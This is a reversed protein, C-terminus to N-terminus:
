GNVRAPNLGRALEAAADATVIWPPRVARDADTWDLFRLSNYAGPMANVAPSRLLALFDALSTTTPGFGRNFLYAGLDELAHDASAYREEPDRALLKLTFRSIEEDIGALLKHPPRLPKELSLMVETIAGVVSQSAAPRMNPNFGTLLEYVVLGLAYLDSRADVPDGTLVEPAMYPVKGTIQGAGEADGLVAAVGFDSLKVFGRREDLLINGPSVDRHVLGVVGGGFDYTHAYSLARLTMFAVFGVIPEPLRHAVAGKHARETGLGVLERLGDLDLGEVFTMAVFVRGAEDVGSDLYQVINDHSLRSMRLAEAALSAQGTTTETLFKVAVLQGHGGASVREAKWVEGMGGRGLRALLRYTSKSAFTAGKELKPPDGFLKKMFPM